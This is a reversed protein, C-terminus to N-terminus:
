NFIQNKEQEFFYLKAIESVYKGIDKLEYGAESIIDIDEKQIDAVVMKIYTGMHKRDIQGGNNLDCADTLMQELRWTPTVTEALETLANIKDNDVEHLVKVKSKGAHKLGKSKFSYSKKNENIHSFVIGEGIDSVGFYKGVPCEDEVELTLEVIKNQILEPKNFDVDISYTKFQMINYIQQAENKLHAFNAMDQYVDDIRVAFIIFMKPLQAIAVGKQVGKGCIEGYIVCSEKFDINNFLNQYDKQVMERMFGCNDGDKEDLNLVRERSQFEHTFYDGVHESDARHYYKAISSNSGHLKVTGRFTLTPYPTDHSYIPNGDADSGKYDHNTRLERVVNRFQGIETFKKM